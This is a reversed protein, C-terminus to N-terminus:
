IQWVHWIHLCKGILKMLVHLHYWFNNSDIMFFNTFGLNRWIVEIQLSLTLWTLLTITHNWEISNPHSKMSSFFASVSRCKVINSIVLNRFIKFTNEVSILVNRPCLEKSNPRKWTNFVIIRHTNTHLEADTCGSLM